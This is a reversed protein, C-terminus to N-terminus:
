SKKDAPPTPQSKVEEVLHALIEKHEDVFADNQERLDVRGINNPFHQIPSQGEIIKYKKLAM